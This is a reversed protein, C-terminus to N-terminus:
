KVILKLYIKRLECSIYKYFLVDLKNKKINTEDINISRISKNITRIYVEELKLNTFDNKINYKDITIIGDTSKSLMIDIWPHKLNYNKNYSVYMNNNMQVNNNKYYEVMFPEHHSINFHLINNIFECDIKKIDVYNEQKVAEPSLNYYFPVIDGFLQVFKYNKLYIYIRLGKELIKQFLTMIKHEYETHKVVLLMEIHDSTLDIDKIDSFKNNLLIINKKITTIKKLLDYLLVLMHPNSIKNCINYMKIDYKILNNINTTEVNKYNWLMSLIQKQDFSLKYLDKQEFNILKISKDDINYEPDWPDFEDMVINIKSLLEYICEKVHEHKSNFINKVSKILYKNFIQYGNSRETKKNNILSFVAHPNTSIKHYASHHGWPKVVFGPFTFGFSVDLDILWSSFGIDISHWQGSFYKTMYNQEPLVYSKNFSNGLWCGKHVNNYNYYKGITLDMLMKKYTETNPEIILLSANIDSAYSNEIDTFIHHIKEGHKFFMSRDNKWSDIGYAEDQLRRHEICGAPCDLSFLSDYYQIPFLDADVFIIKKYPLLKKNFINLKTMVKTYPHGKKLTENSVDNIFIFKKPDSVIKEDINQKDWTIYPITVVDDYYIKLIDIIHEDIDPTVLCIVNAKTGKTNKTMLDYNHYYNKLMYAVMLIGILYTYNKVTSKGIVSNYSPFLLTCYCYDKKEINKLELVM